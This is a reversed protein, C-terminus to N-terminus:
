RRRKTSPREPRGHLFSRGPDVLFRRRIAERGLLLRFGMEDRKTLTLEIRWEVGSLAVTTVIVPRREVAGGSNRVPRDDVVKATAHITHRTERQIPHIVFRVWDGDKRRFRELEHAHLASSRAGTDLKAKINAVGLEPLGVWERWGISPPRKRKESRGM